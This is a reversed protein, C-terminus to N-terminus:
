AGQAPTAGSENDIDAALKSLLVRAAATKVSPAASGLKTGARGTNAFAASLAKDHEASLAPEVFYKKLEERRPGHTQGKTAKIAAMNSDVHSTPGKPAGGVPQGGPQGAASTEPPVAKGATIKAPNLADEAQKVHAAMHAALDAPAAEKGKNEPESKHAAEAKALGREAEAMGETEKKEATGSALKSRILDLVGATKSGNVINAPMKTHLHPADNQTNAMQTQGHEAPLDKQMAPHMPVTRVGQGKKDPLPTSATAQSVGPPGEQVHETLNYGGAMGAAGKELEGALFDLAGALKEVQQGALKSSAEKSKCKGAHKELGCDSCKEEATKEAQVRAEDTVRVRSASATMAAKVLDQLMPRGAMNGM